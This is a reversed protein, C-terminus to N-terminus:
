PCSAVQGAPTKGAPARSTAEHNRDRVAQLVYDDGGDGADPRPRVGGKQTEAEFKEGAAVLGRTIGPAFQQKLAAQNAPPVAPLDGARIAALDEEEDSPAAPPRPEGKQERFVVLSITGVDSGYYM